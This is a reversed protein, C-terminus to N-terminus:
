QPLNKSFHGMQAGLVIISRINRSSGTSTALWEIRRGGAIGTTAAAADIISSRGHQPLQKNFQRM